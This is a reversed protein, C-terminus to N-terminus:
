QLLERLEEIGQRGEQEKNLEIRSLIQIKKMASNKKRFKNIKKRNGTWQHGSVDVCM